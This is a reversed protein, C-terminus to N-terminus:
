ATVNRRKRLIVIAVGAMVLAFIIMGWESLTPIASPSLCGPKLAILVGASRNGGGDEDEIDATGDGTAGTPQKIAIAAGVSGDEDFACGYDYIEVLSGPSTTNWDTLRKNETVQALFVVMTNDAVTTISPAIPGGSNEVSQDGVADFPDSPDVCRFASIAGIFAYTAVDGYMVFTYDTPESAGAWKWLVTGTKGSGMGTSKLVLWGDSEPGVDESSDNFFNAILLDGDLTGAPKDITLQTSDSCNWASAVHTIPDAFACNPTCFGQAAILSLALLVVFLPHFSRVRFTERNEMGGGTWWSKQRM